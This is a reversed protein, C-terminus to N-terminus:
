PQDQVLSKFRPLNRLTQFEDESRATARAFGNRLAAELATLAADSRGALAHVAAARRLVEFDNPALVLAEGLPIQAEVARGAKQLYLALSALLRADRPNVKLDDRTLEIAREYASRAERSRGMKSYADGLNRHTERANPRIAIAQKYADVAQQYEGRQHYIAGVNSFAPAFPRIALAKEYFMLARETDGLAQYALGANQLAVVNDPQIVTVHEFAEAAERYRGAEFLSQGMATYPAAYSPRVDTVKRFEAIAEDIKQQRALVRGLQIRADEFNPRLALAQHLEQVAADLQGTGALTIALVHRVEPRDPDLRLATTGAAIADQATSPERTDIYRAWLAEGRAAHAIAFNPDLRVAEDFASLAVDTNGKIDRRDLFARGRWYASLAEPNATPQEALKSREAASVQVSLKRGLAAALRSQLEFVRDHLGEVSDGWEVSRDPRVLNISLRVRDGAEQVSGEVLYDAGLEKAVKSPETERRWVGIVAARSLVTIGRLSALSTTLSDAVGAALYDNNASGTKNDFPLVAIVRTLEATPEAPPVRLTAVLATVAAILLAAAVILWARTTLPRSIRSPSAVDRELSRLLNAVDRASAPRQAPDRALASDILADISPPVHENFERIHPRPAEIVQQMLALRSPPNFPRRGSLMEFLLVGLAFLDTHPGLPEGLWQEPAAYGPTGAYVGPGSHLVPSTEDNELAATHAIGFDLIKARGDRTLMVNGPKLDRHIIGHAHAAALGDALQEGIRLADAVALRGRQLRAALTEGEVYEFVIVLEGAIDLVDHVAAISPHSLRAAARAERLLQDRAQATAAAHGAFTKLAVFRGLRPDEALLVTGM